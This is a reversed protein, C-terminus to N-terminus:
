MLHCACLAQLGKVGIKDDSLFIKPEEYMPM